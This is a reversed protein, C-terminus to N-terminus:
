KGQCFSRLDPPGHPHRGDWSAFNAFWLYSLPLGTSGCERTGPDNMITWYSFLFQKTDTTTTTPMKRKENLPDGEVISSERDRETRPHHHRRSCRQIHRWCPGPVLLSFSHFLSKRPKGGWRMGSNDFPFSYTNKAVFFWQRFTVDLDVINKAVDEARFIYIHGLHYKNSPM